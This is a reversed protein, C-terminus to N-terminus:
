LYQIASIFSSKYSIFSIKSVVLITELSSQHLLTDQFGCSFAQM